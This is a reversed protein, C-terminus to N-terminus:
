VRHELPRARGHASAGSRPRRPSTSGPNLAPGAPKKGTRRATIELISTLDPWPPHRQRLWDSSAARATREEVRGHGIATELHVDLDATLGPNAFFLRVDECLSTQHGKLALGYDARKACIAKAIETQTGIAEISVIAGELALLELLQPLAIIENSKADVARQPYCWVLRARM